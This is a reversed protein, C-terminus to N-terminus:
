KMPVDNYDFEINYRITIVYRHVSQLYQEHLLPTCRLTPTIYFSDEKQKSNDSVFIAEAVCDM